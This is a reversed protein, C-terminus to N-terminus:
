STGVSVPEGREPTADPEAGTASAEDARNAAAVAAEAERLRRRLRRGRRVLLVIVAVVVLLGAVLLWPVAWAIGSAHHIGAVEGERGERQRPEVDVAGTLLMAPPVETFEQTLRVEGGPLLEPLAQPEAAALAWGFPGSMGVRVDGGLRLNGPNSVTYSVVAPGGTLGLGGRYDVEVDSVVLEPAAEGPVDVYVRVGVRRDVAVQQGGEGAPALEALSAVIGGAHDGPEANPPLTLRFPIDARTGPAITFVGDGDIGVWAGVDESATGAPPLSFAGDATMLADMAYVRVTVPEAGLNSVGVYDTTTEGPGLSYQLADRGDPGDASSPQVAWTVQVDDSAPEEASAAGADVALGLAALTIGLSLLARKSRVAFRGRVAM